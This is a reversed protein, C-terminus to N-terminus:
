TLVSKLFCNSSEVPSQLQRRILIKRIVCTEVPVLSAVKCQQGGIFNVFDDPVEVLANFDLCLVSVVDQCVRVQFGKKVFRFESLMIPELLYTLNKIVLM